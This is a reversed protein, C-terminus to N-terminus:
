STAKAGPGGLWHRASGGRGHGASGLKAQTAAAAEAEPSRAWCSWTADLSACVLYPTSPVWPWSAGWALGFVSDEHQLRGDTRGEEAAPFVEDPTNLDLVLLAGESTGVALYSCCPSLAMSTLEGSIKSQAVVDLCQFRQLTRLDWAMVTGLDSAALLMQNRAHADLSIRRRSAAPLAYLLSPARLDWVRVHGDPSATVLSRDHTTGNLLRASTVVGMHQSLTRVSTCRQTDWVRALCDDSATCAIFPEKPHFNVDNVAAKHGVLEQLAGNNMNWLCAHGGLGACGILRKSEPGPCAAVALLPVGQPRVAAGRPKPGKAGICVTPGQRWGSLDFTNLCGDWSCSVATSGAICISSVPAEHTSFTGASAFAWCNPSTPGREAARRRPRPGMEPARAAGALRLKLQAVNAELQENKLRLMQFHRSLSSTGDRGM